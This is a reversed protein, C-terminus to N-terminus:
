RMFRAFLFPERETCAVSASPNWPACSRSIRAASRRRFRATLQYVCYLPGGPPVTVVLRDM